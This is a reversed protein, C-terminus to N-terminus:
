PLECHWEQVVSYAGGPADVREFGRLRFALTAFGTQVPEFLDPLQSRAVPDSSALTAVMNWEGSVQIQYTRLDGIFSPGNIVERWPLRRGRVRLPYVKFRM